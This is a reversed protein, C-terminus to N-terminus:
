DSSDQSQIYKCNSIAFYLTGVSAAATLAWVMFFGLTYFGMRSIAIDKGFPFLDAPDFMSFFLGTAVMSALFSPWLIAICRHSCPLRPAEM